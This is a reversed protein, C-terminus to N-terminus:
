AQLSPSNSIMKLPRFVRGMKLLKMKSLLSPDLGLLKFLVEGYMDLIGTSVVVFDMINWGNTLYSNKHLCFGLAMIKVVMEVIFIWLFYIETADLFDSLEGRDGNPLHEYSALQLCNAIIAVLIINDFIKNSSIALFLKRVPNERTMFFFAKDEQWFKNPTRFLRDDEKELKEALDRVIVHYEEM